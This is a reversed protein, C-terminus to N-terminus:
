RDEWTVHGDAWIIARGGPGSIYGLETHSVNEIQAFSSPGQYSFVFGNEGTAPNQFVDSNRVYSGIQDATAGGSPPLNEDYDQTYGILALGVQKANQVAAKRQAGRLAQEFAIASLRFVPAACLSGDRTFLVAAATETALETERRANTAILLSDTSIPSNTTVSPVTEPKQPATPRLWLASGPQSKGSPNQLTADAITVTVPWSERLSPAEKVRESAPIVPLKDPQTVKGTELNIVTLMKRAVFKGNATKEMIQDSYISKGDSMWSFDSVGGPLSIPASLGQPTYVRLSTRFLPGTQAGTDEQTRIYALPQSPSASVYDTLLYRFYMETGLETIRSVKGTITDARLLSYTLETNQPQDPNPITVRSLVILATNTQPLWEIQNVGVLTNESVPERYLTKAIRTRVDWYILNFEGSPLYREGPALVVGPFPRSKNAAILISSGNPSAIYKQLKIDAAVVEPQGLLYAYEGSLIARTRATLQGEATLSTSPINLLPEAYAFLTGLIAIGASLLAFSPVFSRRM